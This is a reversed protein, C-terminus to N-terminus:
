ILKLRASTLVLKAAWDWNLCVQGKTGVLDDSIEQHIHSAGKSKDVFDEPNTTLLILPNAAPVAHAISRFEEFMLCDNAGGGKRAPRRNNSGRAFAALQTQEELAIHVCTALLQDHLAMLSPIVSEHLHGAVYPYDTGLYQAARRYESIAQDVDGAKKRAEGEVDARNRTAEKQLSSHAYLLLESNQHAEILQKVVGVVRVNGRWVCRVIDLAVCTDIVMAPLHTRAIDSAIDNITKQMTM